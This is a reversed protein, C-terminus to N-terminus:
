KSVRSVNESICPQRGLLDKVKIESPGDPHELEKGPTRGAFHNNTIVNQGALVGLDDYRRSHPLSRAELRAHIEGEQSRRHRGAEIVGIVLM